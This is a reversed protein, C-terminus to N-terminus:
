LSSAFTVRRRRVALGLEVLQSEEFDGLNEARKRHMVDNVDEPGPIKIKIDTFSM